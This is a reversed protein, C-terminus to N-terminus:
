YTERMLKLTLLKGAHKSILVKLMSTSIALLWDISSTFNFAWNAYLLFHMLISGALIAPLMLSRAELSLGEKARIIITGLSVSALIATTLIATYYHTLL